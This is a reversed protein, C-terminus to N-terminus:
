RGTGIWTGSIPEQKFAASPTYPSHLALVSRINEAEAAHRNIFDADETALWAGYELTSDKYELAVIDNNPNPGGTGSEWQMQNVLQKFVIEMASILGEFLKASSLFRVYQGAGISIFEVFALWSKKDDLVVGEPCKFCDSKEGLVFRFARQIEETTRVTIEARHDEIVVKARKAPPLAKIAEM